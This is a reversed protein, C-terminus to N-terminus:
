ESDVGKKRICCVVGSLSCGTIFVDFTHENKNFILTLFYKENNLHCSCKQNIIRTRTIMLLVNELFLKKKKENISM